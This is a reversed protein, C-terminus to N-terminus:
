RNPQRPKEFVFSDGVKHRKRYVVPAADVRELGAEVFADTWDPNSHLAENVALMQGLRQRGGELQRVADAIQPKMARFQPKGARSLHDLMGMLYRYLGSRQWDPEAALGERLQRIRGRLAKWDIKGTVARELVEVAGLADIRAYEDAERRMTALLDTSVSHALVALRGGPRLLEAVKGAAAQWDCYEIGYQSTVLDVSEPDIELAELPTQEIFRIDDLEASWAPFQRRIAARDMRAADVALIELSRGLERAARAALLAVAGNGTCVDLVRAGEPLPEIRRHWFDAIEGDYNGRFDDPLSTLAGSAWYRTWHRAADPDQIPSTM